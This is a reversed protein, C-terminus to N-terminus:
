NNLNKNKIYTSYFRLEKFYNIVNPHSKTKKLFTM